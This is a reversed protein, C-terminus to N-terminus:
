EALVMVVSDQTSSVVDSLELNPKNESTEKPLTKASRLLDFLLQAKVAFNVNQPLDGANEISAVSSLTYTIIGVVEGKKTLLPGGSNGPQISVTTQLINPDDHPGALASVIGNTVKITKGFQAGYPYGITYVDQGLGPLRSTIPLGKPMASKDAPALLVIDNKKDCAVLTLKQKGFSKGYASFSTKNEVVHWCSVILGNETVWGTGSSPGESIKDPALEKEHSLVAKAREATLAFRPVTREKDRGTLFTYRGAPYVTNSLVSRDAANTAFLGVVCIQCYAGNLYTYGIALEDTVFQAVQWTMKIASAEIAQLDRKDQRYLQAQQPDFGFQKQLDATLDRFYLTAGGHPYAITIRDPEQRLIKADKFERGDLTKIDVARLNIAM